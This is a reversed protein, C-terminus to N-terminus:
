PRFGRSRPARVDLFRAPVVERRAALAALGRVFDRPQGWALRVVDVGAAPVDLAAGVEVRRLVVLPLLEGRFRGLVVRAGDARNLEVRRALADHDHNAVLLVVGVRSGLQCPGGVGVGHLGVLLGAGHLRGPRRVLGGLHSAPRLGLRYVEVPQLLVGRVVHPRPAVEVRPSGGGVACPALHTREDGTRVRNLSPAAAYDRRHRVALRGLDHDAPGLGDGVRAGLYAPRGVLVCPLRVRLGRRQLGSPLVPFGRRRAPLLGLLYIQSIEVWARGVVHLRPAVGLLVPREPRVGVDHSDRNGGIGRGGVDAAAEHRALRALVAPARLDGHSPSAVVRAALKRPGVVWVCPLGVLLGLRELELPDVLGRGRLRPRLGGRGVDVPQGLAGRVVHPGTGVVALVLHPRCVGLAHRDGGIRRGGVHYELAGRCDGPTLCYLEVPGHLGLLLLCLPVDVLIATGVHRECVALAREGPRGYRGLPVAVPVGYREVDFRATPATERGGVHHGHADRVDRGAVHVSRRRQGFLWRGELRVGVRGARHNEARAAREADGLRARVAVPVLHWTVGHPRIRERGLPSLGCPPARPEARRQLLRNGVGRGGVVSSLGRERPHGLAVLPVLVRNDGLRVRGRRERVRLRREGLVRGIAAYVHRLDLHGVVAREDVPARVGNAHARDLGHRPQGGWLRLGREHDCPRMLGLRGLVYRDHRVDGVPGDRDAEMRRFARGLSVHEVDVPCGRGPVDQHRPIQGEVRIDGIGVCREAPALQVVPHAEPRRVAVDLEVVECVLKGAAHKAEVPVSVVHLEREVQDHALGVLLSELGPSM